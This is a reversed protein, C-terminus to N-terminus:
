RAATLEGAHAAEALVAALDEVSPDVLGITVRIHDRAGSAGRGVDFPRGPAAGIGRSALHVLAATEDAVPVWANIGDGELAIGAARLQEALVSRRRRYEARASRVAAVSDPDTLLHLLLSQLIRSTWGQGLHRRADLEGILAAPGSLAAIRLDPGHSKAYSRIHVTQEPIWRGLSVAPASSIDGASDDEVVVLEAGALERALARARRATMSVGTPNQARPQLFVAAPAHRLAARMADPELGEADMPVPLLDAGLADLLDLLPAFCPTEVVVRDGFQLVARALQEVADMAGDSVAMAPPRYPWDEALVAALETLMPPDLYSAARPALELDRLARGLDPLLTPDPLGTSLDLAFMSPNSRAPVVDRYRVPGAGAAATVTTGRRGDTRVAGARALQTWASAVTTPSMKLQAALTRIPPLRDGPRLRGERIASTLATVLGRASNETLREELDSILGDM